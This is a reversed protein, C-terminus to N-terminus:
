YGSLYRGYGVGSSNRYDTFGYESGSILKSGLMHGAHGDAFALNIENSHRTIPAGLWTPRGYGTDDLITCMKIYSVASESLASDGLIVYSATKFTTTYYRSFQVVNGLRASIGPTQGYSRYGITYSRNTSPMAAPCQYLGPKERYAPLEKSTTLTEHWYIGNMTAPPLYAKSESAYSIAGLALQKMNNLCQTGRARERAKNLAPLLMAALIAIIAIVVLLEILTFSSIIFSNCSKVNKSNIM